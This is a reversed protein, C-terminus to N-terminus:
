IETEEELIIRISECVEEKVPEELIEQLCIKEGENLEGRKLLIQELQEKELAVEMNYTGWNDDTLGPLEEYYQELIMYAKELRM